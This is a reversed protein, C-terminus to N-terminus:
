LGDTNFPRAHEPSMREQSELTFLPTEAPWKLAKMRFQRPRARQKQGVQMTVVRRNPRYTRPWLLAILVPFLLVWFLTVM